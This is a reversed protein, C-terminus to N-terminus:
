LASNVHRVGVLSEFLDGPKRYYVFITYDNETISHSGEFLTVDAVDKGDELFAYKYNYYGQKLLLRQEYQSDQYNYEMRNMSTFNWDTLEGLIYINGNTMPEHHPLTFYVWTYDSELIDDHYDDTKILFKGNIDPTTTYRLFRRNRDPQLHVDWGRSSPSIERIRLSRYRLSKTDFNRFENGGAFLNGDEYDYILQNGQVLRPQLNYIANDWRGNQTLVVKLEQYPNSIRFQSTNIIFDIEQKTDRFNLNTAQKVTAEIALRQEFVMFRRTLAVNDPDGDVFVKLIYNGSVLPKMNHNPFELHYNTFAVRTNRSFFYNNILDQYFGEIYEYEMLDSPNWLADCHIITYYYNKFDADLDDFRLVLKEDTNLEIISPSFEWGKRNFLVTKINNHYVFDGYRLFNKQYYDDPQPPIQLEAGPNEYHTEILSNNRYGMEGQVHKESRLHNQFIIFAIGLLLLKPVKIGIKNHLM